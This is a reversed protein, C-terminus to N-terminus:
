KLQITVLNHVSRAPRKDESVVLKFPGSKEDLAKGDMADAVMVEGPHFAPDVEALSLVVAYGDSGTAVLYDALARGRLEKGLPAGYKTLLDALPMGSYTKDANSHANHVTLNKHPLAKFEGPQLSVDGHFPSLSITLSKVAATPSQGIALAFPLTLAFFCAILFRM